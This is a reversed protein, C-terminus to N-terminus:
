IDGNTVADIEYKRQMMFFANMEKPPFLFHQYALLMQSVAESAMMNGCLTGMGPCLVTQIINGHSANYEQVASLMAKMAYYVNKTGTIDQPTQMTPTHALFPHNAHLTPIIFSTGVPQEGSYASLIHEQVRRELQNGFYATIDRDIGGDMMGFSNAPSVFCDYHEVDQFKREYVEVDPFISFQEYLEECVDPNTDVFHLDFQM